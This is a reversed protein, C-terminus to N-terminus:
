YELVKFKILCLRMLFDCDMVLVMAVYAWELSMQLPIMYAVGAGICKGVKDVTRATTDFEVRQDKDVNTNILKSWFANAYVSYIQGLAAALVAALNIDIFVIFISVDAILTMVVIEKLTVNGKRYKSLMVGCVIALAAGLMERSSITNAGLAPIWKTLFWVSAYSCWFGDFLSTVVLINYPSFEM